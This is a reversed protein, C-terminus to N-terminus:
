SAIYQLVNHIVGVLLILLLGLAARTLVSKAQEVSRPSSATMFRIGGYVMILTFVAGALTVLMSTLRGVMTLLHATPM